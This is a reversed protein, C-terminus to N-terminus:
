AAATDQHNDAARGAAIMRHIAREGLGTLERARKISVTIPRDPPEKAPDMGLVELVSDYFVLVRFGVKTSKLPKPSLAFQGSPPSRKKM